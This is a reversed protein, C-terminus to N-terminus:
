RRNILRYLLSLIFALRDISAAMARPTNVTPQVCCVGGGMDGDAFGGGSNGVGGGEFGGGGSVGFAL